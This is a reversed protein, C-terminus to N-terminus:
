TLTHLPQSVGPWVWVLGAAERTPYASLMPPERSLGTWAAWRKGAKHSETGSFAALPRAQPVAACQGCGDFAWGHYACHLRGDAEIRGESLPALRHPCVDQMCRSLAMANLLKVSQASSHM